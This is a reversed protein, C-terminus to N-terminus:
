RNTSEDIRSSHPSLLEELIQPALWARNEGTVHFVIPNIPALRRQLEALLADRVLVLSHAAEGSALRPLIPALGIRRWLELKGIEDVVVLDCHGVDGAPTEVRNMALEVVSLAWSLANEDFSYPGVVPGGLDRDTRALVRREGTLLNVGYIGVKKGSRNILAPALLGGYALGRSRALEVVQAAVSTKGVGVPGSLLGVRVDRM